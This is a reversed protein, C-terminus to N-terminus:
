KNKEIKFTKRLEKSKEPLLDLSVANTTKVM